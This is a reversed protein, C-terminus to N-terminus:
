RGKKECKVWEPTLLSVVEEKEKKKKESKGKKFFNM